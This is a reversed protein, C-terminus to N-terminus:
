LEERYIFFAGLTLIRKALGVVESSQIEDAVLTISSKAPRVNSGEVSFVMDVMKGTRYTWRYKSSLITVILVIVLDEAVIVIRGLESLSAITTLCCDELLKYLYEAVALILM